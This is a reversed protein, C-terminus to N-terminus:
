HDVSVKVRNTKSINYRPRLQYILYSEYIDRYLANEEEFFQVSLKDTGYKFIDISGSGRLHSYVRRYINDSIGVYLVQKDSDVFIYVGGATHKALEPSDVPFANIVKDIRMLDNSLLEELTVQEM